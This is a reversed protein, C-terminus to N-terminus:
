KNNKIGNIQASISLRFNIGPMAYYHQNQYDVDFINNAAFSCNFEQKKVDFQYKLGCNVLTYADLYGRDDLADEDVAYEYYREGTYSGDIYLTFDHYSLMCSGNVMNKPVYILQQTPRDDEKKVAPNYTYNATFDAGIKGLDVHSNYMVELGKTIVRDLNYPVWVGTNRWEIWDKIDMYFLNARLKSSYYDATWRHEFGTEVSFGDEPALDPDGQTGWFRDNFTPVRYSRSATVFAKLQSRASNIVQYELGAAPTFPVEYDTVFQQRLNLTAKLRPNPKYYWALYIDLHQEYDIVSDSYSYVTPVIHKFKVGSKVEMKPTLPYKMSFDTVVRDTQIKQSEDADYVQKDHVFGAGLDYKLKNNENKYEAWFRFNNNSLEETSTYTYNQQMNPQVQHWSDEYWFMSKFYENNGFLYNFEQIFGKNNIAAGQQTDTVTGPNSIQESHYPNQFTFDNDTSYKLVKTVSEWKGNGAYVKAGYMREGFSGYTYKLDTRLGNTWYNRQGLYIAGGVAGSGNLAASSGYQLELRDFLFTTINSLNSHGLTLSNVNIGGFMISTHDASTGRIHITSLGGANTKVYIPTYRMLIQELGGEQAIAMQKPTIEEIKAGTQYKVYDGYASVEELVITDTLPQEQAWVCTGWLLIIGFVVFRRM